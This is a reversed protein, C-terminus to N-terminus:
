LLTVCRIRQNDSTAALKWVDWLLKVVSLALGLKFAINIGYNVSALVEMSLGRTTAGPVFYSRAQVMVALVLIGMVQVAIDVGARWRRAGTVFLIVTKLLLQVGLLTIIQWYFIHWEPTLGFPMGRLYGTGPGLLLYPRYPVALLWMLILSSVIVDAVANALSPKKGQKALPPLKRPDWNAYFNVKQPYHEYLFQIAAFFLTMWAAFYFLVSFLSTVSSGALHAQPGSYIFRVSESLIFIGVVFPFARRMTFWYYPFIEPGILQRSPQYRAAVISPHGHGRLLEAEEAETLPRGLEEERGELAALLNTKLEALTDERGKAPLYVGVAQLYRELLDM